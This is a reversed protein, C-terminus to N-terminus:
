DLHACKFAGMTPHAYHEEEVQTKSYYNEFGVTAESGWPNAAHEQALSPNKEYFDVMRSLNVDNTNGTFFDWMYDFAPYLPGRTSGPNKGASKELTDMIERLTLSDSGNVSFRGPRSSGLAEGAASAIDDTHV